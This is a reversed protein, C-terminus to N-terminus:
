RRLFEQSVEKFKRFEPDKHVLTAERAVATAAIWSDAVSMGGQAKLRSAIDLIGPECSVWEIPFSEILRLAHRAEEEGEERWVCYLIEMRTMFSVLLPPLHTQRAQQLLGDVRSAGPEDARLTLLASTDLVFVDKRPM